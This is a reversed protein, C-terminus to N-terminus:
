SLVVIYEGGQKVDDFTCYGSSQVASRSVLSLTNASANYRYLKASCGARRSNFKVTVSAEAGFSGGNVTFQSSTVGSNAKVAKKKLSSPISTQGYKIFPSFATTSTIDNGNLTIYAGNSFKFQINVNKGKLTKLVDEPIETETNMEVAYTAGSRASNIVKNVTTWGTYKGITVKSTDKSATTTGLGGWGGLGYYYYYYPDNYYGYNGYTNLYSASHVSNTITRVTYGSPTAAQAASLTDYYRGTYPSFYVTYSGTGDVYSSNDGSAIVAAERTAYYRGTYRSYYPYSSSRTSSSNTYYDVVYSSSNNPSALRAEESTTYFLGTYTSYYRYTSSYYNSTYGSVGTNNYIYMTDTSSRDTYYGGSGSWVFYRKTTTWKEGDNLEKRNYQNSGLNQEAQYMAQLNPYWYGTIQSQYAYNPDAYYSTINNINVSGAGMNGSYNNYVFITEGNPTAAGSALEVIKGSTSDVYYKDGNTIFPISTVTTVTPNGGNVTINGAATEAKDKSDYYEYVVTGSTNVGVAIRYATIASVTQDASAVISFTPVASVTAISLAAVRGLTKKKM